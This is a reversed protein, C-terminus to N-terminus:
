RQGDINEVRFWNRSRVRAADIFACTNVVLVDADDASAVREHGESLARGLMLEGDVQNKACGLPAFYIKKAPM